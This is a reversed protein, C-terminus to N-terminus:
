RYLFKRARETGKGRRIFRYLAVIKSFMVYAVMVRLAIPVPKIILTQLDLVCSAFTLMFIVIHPRITKSPFSEYSTGALLILLLPLNYKPSNAFLECAFAVAVGVYVYPLGTALQKICLTWSSKKLIVCVDSILKCLSRFSSRNTRTKKKDEPKSTFSVPVPSKTKAKRKEVPTIPVQETSELDVLSGDYAAVQAINIHKRFIDFNRKKEKASKFASKFALEPSLLLNDDLEVPHITGSMDKTPTELIM